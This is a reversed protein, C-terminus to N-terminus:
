GNHLIRQRVSEAVKDIDPFLAEKYYGMVELQNILEPAVRQSIIIKEIKDRLRKNRELRVFGEEIKEIYKFLIFCGKQKNVRPLKFNTRFLKTRNGQFPRSNELSDIVDNDNIRLAWVEPESGDKEHKELAFWLAVLPDESWDLVRTPLGHHQGVVLWDWDTGPQRHLCDKAEKKFAELLKKEAKLLNHNNFKERCISPLLPWNKRQGRFVTNSNGKSVIDVWKNFDPLTDCQWKIYGDIGKYSSDGIITPTIRNLAM